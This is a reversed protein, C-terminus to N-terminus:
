SAKSKFAGTLHTPSFLLSFLWGAIFWMIITKNM